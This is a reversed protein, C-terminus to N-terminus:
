YINKNNYLNTAEELKKYYKTEINSVVEVNNIKSFIKNEKYIFSIDEKENELFTLNLISNLQNEYSSDYNKNKFYSIFNNICLLIKENNSKTIILDSFIMDNEINILYHNNFLYDIFNINNFNIKFNYDIYIGGNKHLFCYKWFDIKLKVSKIKNFITFFKFDYNKRLYESCDFLNFVIYKLGFPKFKNGYDKNIEDNCYNVQYIHLPIVTKLSKYFAETQNFLNITYIKKEAWLESYHTNLQYKLQEERYNEYMKLINKNKYLIYKSCPALILDFNTDYDFLSGLLGPGTPYLANYGYFNNKTNKVIENICKLLKKNKPFTILFANYVGIQNPLWYNDRDKVFHEKDILNIFKFNEIPEFKIDIYIGGNIYLICYRFLDAKYAGPILSNYADLVNKSFHKKIFDYCMSDDYLYYKFEPNDHKLKNVCEQMKPPLDLTRWTQYLNLPIINNNNNFNEFLYINKNIYYFLFIIILFISIYIM